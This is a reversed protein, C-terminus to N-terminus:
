AAPEDEVHEWGTVMAKIHTTPTHGLTTLYPHFFLYFVFFAFILVHVTDVVRVGGLMEVVAGFRKLDWLLLGSAIQLPILMLMLIQYLTRQLANFKDYPDMHHPNPDGVFIGYGYYRAQRYMDRALKLINFEPHYVRNRDSFLYYVFWLGFNAIMAFGSWNHVVVATRFSMLDIAGLYRIQVGSAILLAFCLVNLWHWVRVPLPHIYLKTM